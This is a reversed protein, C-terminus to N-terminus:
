PASGRISSFSAQLALAPTRRVAEAVATARPQSRACRIVLLRQVPTPEETNVFFRHGLTGMREYRAGVLAYENPSLTLEWSLECYTETPQRKEFNWEREGSKRLVPQAVLVAEGHRVQPTFRLRIKDGEALEPLVELLCQAQHHEMAAVMGDRKLRFPLSGWVSGLSVDRAMGARLGVHRPAVNCRESLLMAQLGDPPAGGIQGARFGNADLLARGEIENEDVLSWLEDNLYPDGLPRELLVIEMQVVDEGTPGTFPRHTEHAL